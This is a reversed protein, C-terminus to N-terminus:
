CRCLMDYVTAPSGFLPMPYTVEVYACLIDARKLCAIIPFYGYGVPSSVRVKYEHKYLLRKLLYMFMQIIIERHKQKM